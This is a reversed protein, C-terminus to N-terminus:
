SNRSQELFDDQIEWFDVTVKEGNRRIPKCIVYGYKRRIIGTDAPKELSVVGSFRGFFRLAGVTKKNKCTEIEFSAYNVLFM